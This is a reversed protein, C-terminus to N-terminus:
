KKVRKPLHIAEVAVPRWFSGIGNGQGVRNAIKGYRNPHAAQMQLDYGMEGQLDARNPDESAWMDGPTLKQITLHLWRVRYYLGTTNEGKVVRNFEDIAKKFNARTVSERVLVGLPDHHEALFMARQHYVQRQPRLKICKRVESKTLGRPVKFSSFFMHLAEADEQSRVSGNKRYSNMVSNQEAEGFDDFKGSSGLATPIIDKGDRESKM